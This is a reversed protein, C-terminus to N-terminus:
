PLKYEAITGFPTFGVRTYISVGAPAAQLVAWRYGAERADLLPRVTM